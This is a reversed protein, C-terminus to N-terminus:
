PAPVGTTYDTCGVFTAKYPNDPYVYNAIGKIIRCNRFLVNPANSYVPYYFAGSELFECGDFLTDGANANVSSTQGTVGNNYPGPTTFRVRVFSLENGGLAQMTDVHNSPTGLLTISFVCDEVLCPTPTTVDQQSEVGAPRFAKRDGVIRTWRMTWDKQGGYEFYVGGTIYCHDVLVTRGSLGRGDITGLGATFQCDTFSYAGTKSQLSVSTTFNYRAYDGAPLSGGLRDTLAYRPGVASEAPPFVYPKATYKTGETISILDMRCGTFLAATFLLATLARYKKKM